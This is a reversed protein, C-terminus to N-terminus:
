PAADLRTKLVRNVLEPNAKGKSERMVQGVLYGLAERKGGRYDAVSKPFAQLVREVVDRIAADDSVQSWGHEQILASATKGTDLMAPLVDKAIKGSITGQEILRILDALMGPKLALAAFTLKRANMHALLESQIWNSSLKASAGGSVVAEFFDARKRESALVAADYGSLGFQSVFRAEREAPLEPLTKRIREVEERSVTFPVLDPEPFYRYDHAEEKSRMPATVSKADNWLRTELRIREGAELAAIQREIEYRLAREVARFSNLNKIEAKTGLKPDGKKRVSVNADCRLHGEEMNCDSVELYQLTAKIQDLYVHAEEPSSIEPQTVIELLPVGARNYDVLSGNRVNEHLLKGADEELHARVIGVRKPGSPTQIELYGDHSVPQDYQSIQYAKPLDPYFYNKRDFKLREAVTCNLALAVKIAYELVKRNLVPLSGPLGLCVPCTNRNPEAGFQTSCPCFIKSQTQLQVHTELGIVAEYATSVTQAERPAM